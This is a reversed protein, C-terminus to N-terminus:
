HNAFLRGQYTDRSRLAKDIANLVKKKDASWLPAILLKRPSDGTLRHIVIHPPIIELASVILDIYEDFGLESLEGKGYVEELGTNKMVHLMHLKIGTPRNNCVFRVTNMMDQKTEHPLGLIIHTVYEIGRRSLAHVAEIYTSNDYGRNIFDATEPNSTQFGLEVWLYTIKNIEGLLELIEESLCDPRTAIAIGCVDQRHILSFFKDRLEAVPAYTNTYAQFYAIYRSGEWKPSMATIGKEFQQQLDEGGEAFDGSGRESCFICGVTSLRGDRNPCTFGGDLSIKFVKEGFKNRLFSNLSYYRKDGWLEM